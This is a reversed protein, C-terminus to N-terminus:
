SENVLKDKLAALAAFPGAEEESLVGAEKLAAKAGASRPYPDLALALTDVVAAGLDIAAGDHFVTDCDDPGLEIEEDARDVAPEPIFDIAFAEDVAQGVPDGTIVCSQTLSAMVRGEARVREGDRSLM